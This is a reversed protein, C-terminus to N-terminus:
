SFEVFSVLFQIASVASMLTRMTRSALCSWWLTLLTPKQQPIHPLIQKHRKGLKQYNEPSKPMKQIISANEPIKRGAWMTNERHTDIDTDLNGRKIFVWDYQNPAVWIIEDALIRDETLTVNVSLFCKLLKKPLM